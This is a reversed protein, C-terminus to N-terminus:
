FITLKFSQMTEPYLIVVYIRFLTHSTSFVNRIFRFGYGLNIDSLQGNLASLDNITAVKMPSSVM